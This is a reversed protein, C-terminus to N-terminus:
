NRKVFMAAQTGAIRGFTVIDSIANGGLRNAGHVGGTVEGAAFLGPIRDGDGGKGRAQTDIVVGGMTHNVAPAVEIAYFPATALSRPPDPRAFEADQKPDVFGNYARVTEELAAAEMGLLAAIEALTGNQVVINLHLYNEIIRLSQRV